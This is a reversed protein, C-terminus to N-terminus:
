YLLATLRITEAYAQVCAQHFKYDGEREKKNKSLSHKYAYELHSELSEWTLTIIKEIVKARKKGKLKKRVKM